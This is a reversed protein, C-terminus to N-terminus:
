DDQHIREMLNNLEESYNQEIIYVNSLSEFPALLRVNLVFYGGSTEPYISSVVGIPYDPPFILSHQTMITDSVKINEIHALNKVQAYRVNEGNWTLVGSVNSSKIKSIISFQSHLVSLVVSFNPSVEKIIGVVGEPSVVGMNERIGDAYGKDLVIYNNRKNMTNEIVKASHFSFLLSDGYYINEVTDM